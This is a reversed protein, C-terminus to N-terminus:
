NLLIYYSFVLCKNLFINIVWFTQSKYIYNKHATCWLCLTQLNSGFYFCELVAYFSKKILRGKVNKVLM